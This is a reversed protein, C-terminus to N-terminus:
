SFDEEFLKEAIKAWGPNDPGIDPLDADDEPLNFTRLALRLSNRQEQALATLSSSYNEQDKMEQDMAQRETNYRDATKKGHPGAGRGRRLETLRRGEASGEKKPM